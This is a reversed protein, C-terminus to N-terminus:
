NKVKDVVEEVENFNVLQQGVETIESIELISSVVDDPDQIGLEKHLEVNQLEPCCDYIIASYAKVMDSPKGEGLQDGFDLLRGDSPCNFLLYGGMSPVEISKVKLKDKDRQLKREVLEKLTLKKNINNGM